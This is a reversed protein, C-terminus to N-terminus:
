PGGLLLIKLYWFCVCLFGGGADIGPTLWLAPGCIKGIDLTRSGHSCPYPFTQPGAKRSVGDTGM